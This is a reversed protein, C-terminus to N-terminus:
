RGRVLRLAADRDPVDLKRLITSIHTRVTVPSLFLREAVQRTTLGEELLQFVEQERSTLRVGSDRLIEWWPRLGRRRFEEIVRLALTRPLAAEGAVVGKLTQALMRPEIDKQLYGSAGAQLAAFLDADDDSVSLMVVITTPVRAAIEAAAKIGNGPMHIDLLCVDPRLHAAAKIAAFADGAEASVEMGAEELALRIGARFPPQDDAILVRTAPAKARM